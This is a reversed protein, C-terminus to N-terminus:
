YSYIWNSQLREMINKFQKKALESAHKDGQKLSGIRSRNKEVDMHSTMTLYERKFVEVEKKAKAAVEGILILKEERPSWFRIM